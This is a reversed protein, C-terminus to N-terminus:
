RDLAIKKEAQLDGNTIATGVGYMGLMREDQGGDGVGGEKKEGGASPASLEAGPLKDALVYPHSQPSTHAELWQRWLLVGKDAKTPLYFDRWGHPM